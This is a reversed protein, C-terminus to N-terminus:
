DTAAGRFGKTRREERTNTGGYLYLNEELFEIEARVAANDLKSIGM